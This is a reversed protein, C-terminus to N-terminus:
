SKWRVGLIATDDDSGDTSFEALVADLLDDLSGGIRAAAQNLRGLGTDLIQGRREVLGDTFALLTGRSPLVFDVTQYEAYTKVGIPAGVDTVVMECEGDGVIVPNLHGANALSVARGEVDVLACLVTAFHGETEISHLQSLKTLIEAPADGQAVYARIAYRLSAMITAARLGRGSVDGVTFAFHNDDVPVIDYWDGGIDIGTVGPIYRAGLEVDKMAPLLQPLLAHQLTESINRQQQYLRQNETAVSDREGAIEQALLERRVLRETLWTAGITLLIGFLAVLWPVMQFFTGGLTAVPSMVLLFASTGFPVVVSAQRGTIPLREVSTGILQSSHAQHGLYIAFNLGAFSSSKAIPLARRPQLSAEAYVVFADHGVALAYGLRPQPSSLYSRVQLLPARKADLLTNDAFAPRILLDPRAGVVVLARASHGHIIWLSASVFPRHPGVDPAIFTSFKSPSGNTAQALDAASDLPTQIAPLAAGLVAGADRVRLDLLRNENRDYLVSTTAAFASTVVLGAVFVAVSVLHRHRREYRGLRAPSEGSTPSDVKM